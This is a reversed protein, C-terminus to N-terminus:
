CWLCGIKLQNKKKERLVFMHWTQINREVVRNYTMKQAASSITKCLKLIVTNLVLPDDITQNFIDNPTRHTLEYEAKSAQPAWLDM